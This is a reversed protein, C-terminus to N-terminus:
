LGRQADQWEADNWLVPTAGVPAFSISPNNSQVFIICKMGQVLFRRSAKAFVDLVQEAFEHNNKELVEFNRFVFLKGPAGEEYMDALCDSLASLNKGYYEPLKLGSAIHEHFSPESTWNEGGCDYITYNKNKFETITKELTETKYFLHIPSNYLYQIEINENM